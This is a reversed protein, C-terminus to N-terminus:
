INSGFHSWQREVKYDTMPVARTLDGSETTDIVARWLGKSDQFVLCDYIPGPDKKKWLIDDWLSISENFLYVSLSFAVYKMVDYNKAM